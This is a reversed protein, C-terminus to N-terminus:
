CSCYMINNLFFLGLLVEGEIGFMMGVGFFFFGDKFYEIIKKERIEVEGDYGERGVENEIRRKYFIGLYIKNVYFYFM